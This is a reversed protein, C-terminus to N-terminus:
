SHEIHFWKMFCPLQSLMFLHYLSSAIPQIIQPKMVLLPLFNKRKWFTWDQGPAWVADQQLLVLFEKWSLLAATALFQGSMQM